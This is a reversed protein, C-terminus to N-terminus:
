DMCGCNVKQVLCADKLLLQSVNHLVKRKCSNQTNTTDVDESDSEEPYYTLEDESSTADSNSKSEEQDSSTIDENKECYQEITYRNAEIGCVRFARLVHSM